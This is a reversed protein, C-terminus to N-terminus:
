GGPRRKGPMMGVWDMGLQRQDPPQRQEQHLGLRGHRDGAARLPDARQRSDHEVTAAGSSGGTATNGSTISRFKLQEKTVKRAWAPPTFPMPRGYDRATFLISSGLTETTRSRPRWRNASSPQASRPRVCRRGPKWRWGALRRHLRLYIKAKIRYLHESKDCRAM